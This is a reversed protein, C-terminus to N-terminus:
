EYERVIEDIDVTYLKAGDPKVAVDHVNSAENTLVVSDDEAVSSLDFESGLQLRYIEDNGGNVSNGSAIFIQTGSNAVTIGKQKDGPIIQQTDFIQVLSLTDLDYPTSLTWETLDDEQGAGIIAKTGDSNFEVNTPHDENAYTFETSKNLSATTIDYAASLDFEYIFSDLTPVYLKTGDDNVSVTQQTFGESSVDLSGGVSATSIDYPTSLTYEQITDALSVLLLTGSDIFRIGQVDVGESSTDLSSSVTLASLDGYAGSGGGGGSFPATYSEIETTTLSQGFICIDDLVVNSFGDITGRLNRAFTAFPYQFDATATIGGDTNVSVTQESQDTWIQWTSVDSLDPINYVIRHPANDEFTAHNPWDLIGFNNGEGRISVATDTGGDGPIQIITNDGDNVAGMLFPGGALAESGRYSVAIAFGGADTMSSGFGGLTTHEVYADTGNGEYAAGDVWDGPTETTGNNTADATGVQDMFPDTEGYYWRHTLKQNAESDPIATFVTDGDVTIESVDQGDITAGTIGTGDINTPAM